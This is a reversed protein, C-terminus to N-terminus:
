FRKNLIKVCIILDLKRFVLGFVGAREMSAGMHLDFCLWLYIPREQPRYFALLLVKGVSVTCLYNNHQYVYYFYLKNLIDVFIERSEREKVEVYDIIDWKFAANSYLNIHVWWWLCVYGGM